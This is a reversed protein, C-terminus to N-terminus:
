GLVTLAADLALPFLAAESARRRAEIEPPLVDLWSRGPLEDWVYLAAAARVGHVSAVTLVASTEMDVALYGAGRWRAVLEPPQALLASTTLHPGTVARLGRDACGAALAAVLDPDASSSTAGPSYYQSAGEGISAATPLVVDGTALGPDLAGCSGIQVAVSLGLEGLVHVAEVVRPAGYLCAYVVPVGRHRGWWWDPFPLARVDSLEALRQTEREARWWSGETVLVQPLDADALGLLQQWPQSTPM